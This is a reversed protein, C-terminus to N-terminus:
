CQVPEPSHRTLARSYLEVDCLHVSTNKSMFFTSCYSSTDTFTGKKLNELANVSKWTYTMNWEADDIIDTKIYKGSM